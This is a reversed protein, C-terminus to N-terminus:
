HGSDGDKEQAQRLLEFRHLYGCRTVLNGLNHIADFFIWLQLQTATSGEISLLLCLMFLM